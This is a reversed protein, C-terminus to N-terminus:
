LVECMYAYVMAWLHTRYLFPLEQRDIKQTIEKQKETSQNRTQNMVRIGKAINEYLKVCAYVM